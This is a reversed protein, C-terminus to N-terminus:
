CNNDPRLSRTLKWARATRDLSAAVGAGSKADAVAAVDAVASSCAVSCAVMLPSRKKKKKKKKMTKKKRKTELMARALESASTISFILSQQKKLFTRYLCSGYVNLGARTIKKHNWSRKTRAGQATTRM